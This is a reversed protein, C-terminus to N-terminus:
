CSMSVPVPLFVQEAVDLRSPDGLCVHFGVQASGKRFSLLRQQAATLTGHQNPLTEGALQMRTERSAPYTSSCDQQYGDAVMAASIGM